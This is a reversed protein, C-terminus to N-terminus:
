KSYEMGAKRLGDYYFDFDEYDKYRMGSGTFRLYSWKPNLERLKALTAKAERERGLHGYSATLLFLPIYDEPNSKFARECLAVAKELEYMHFYARALGFGFRDKLFPDLRIARRFSDAAERHKGTYVLALGMAFHSESNNSDLNIASNAETIAGEFDGDLLNMETAVYHALPTPDKMALELYENTMNKLYKLDQSIGFIGAL